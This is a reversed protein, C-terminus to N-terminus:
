RTSRTPARVSPEPRLSYSVVATESTGASPEDGQWLVQAGSQDQYPGTQGPAVLPRGSTAVTAGTAAAPIRYAVWQVQILALYGFDSSRDGPM